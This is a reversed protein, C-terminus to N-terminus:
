LTVMASATFITPSRLSLCAPFFISQIAEKKTDEIIKTLEGQRKKAYEEADDDTASIFVDGIHLLAADEEVRFSLITCYTKMSIIDVWVQSFGKNNVSRLDPRFGSFDEQYIHRKTCAEQCMGRPVHRKTGAEQYMSRPVHKKTCCPTRHFFQRM